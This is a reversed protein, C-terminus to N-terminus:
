KWGRGLHKALFSAKAKEAVTGHIDPRANRALALRGRRDLEADVEAGIILRTRVSVGPGGASRSSTRSGPRRRSFESSRRIGGLYMTGGDPVSVVTNVNFSSVTPLQITTGTTPQQASAVQVFAVQVLAFVIVVSAVVRVM